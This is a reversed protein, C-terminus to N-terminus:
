RGFHTYERGEKDRRGGAKGLRGGRGHIPPMKKFTTRTWIGGPTAKSEIRPIYLCFDASHVYRPCGDQREM